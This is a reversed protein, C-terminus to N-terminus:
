YNQTFLPKKERSIALLPHTKGCYIRWDDNNTRHMLTLLAFLSRHILRRLDSLHKLSHRVDYAIYVV